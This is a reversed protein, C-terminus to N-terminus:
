DEGSPRFGGDEISGDEIGWCEGFQIWLREGVVPYGDDHQM